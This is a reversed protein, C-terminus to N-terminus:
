SKVIEELARLDARVKVLMQKSSKGSPSAAVKAATQAARAAAAVQEIPNLGSNEALACPTMELAESFARM